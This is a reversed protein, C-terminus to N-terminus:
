RSDEQTWSKLANGVQGPRQKILENLLEPTPKAAKANKSAGSGNNDLLDILAASPKHNKLIKMFLAFMFLALVIALFSRGLDVFSWLPSAAAMLGGSPSEPPEFFAAEEISVEGEENLGLAHTVMKKLSALEEPTRPKAKAEEGEGEMRQAIFVAASLRKIAGACKVTEITERNIEYSFSKNKQTNQSNRTPAGNGEGENAAGKGTENSNTTQENITQSRLVQGQPDFREAMRTATENDLEVSVRAVVSQPGLVRGLLTEIKQSFYSEVNQRHKLCGSGGMGSEESSARDSLVNGMQDVIAVAQPKLGEVANAVLFRVSNVGEDNLTASGTDIFVSASPKAKNQEALLRNEPVVIMVRASRVGRLQMITRSLEGQIARTYNTRQVFDSIGFNGKDFIEYGVTGGSPVGKSALSMRLSHVASAPVLVARGGASVEYEVGQEDVAALVDTMDSSDLNGYLLQMQPRQSWLGVATMGAVVVISALVLSVKQNIGLQKWIRVWQEISFNM